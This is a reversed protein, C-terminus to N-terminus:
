KTLIDADGSVLYSPTVKLAKALATLTRPRPSRSTGREIDKITPLPVGSMKALKAQTLVNQKRLRRIRRNVTEEEYKNMKDNSVM